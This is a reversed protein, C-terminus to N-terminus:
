SKVRKNWNTISIKALWESSNKIAKNIMTARCYMNTCKIQVEKSKTYGNGIFRLDAEYGCFPCPLLDDAEFEPETHPMYTKM